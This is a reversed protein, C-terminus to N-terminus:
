TTVNDAPSECTIGARGAGGVLLCQRRMGPGGLWPTGQPRQIQATGRSVECANAGFAGRARHLSPAEARTGARIRSHHEPGENRSKHHEPRHGWM